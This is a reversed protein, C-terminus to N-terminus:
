AKAQFRAYSEACSAIEFNEPFHRLVYPIQQTQADTLNPASRLQRFFHGAKALVCAIDSPTTTARQRCEPALPLGSPVTNNEPALWPGFILEEKNNAEMAAWATIEDCSPYHRLILEIQHRQAETMNESNQLEILYEGGWRLARTRENPMTM